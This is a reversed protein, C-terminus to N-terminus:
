AGVRFGGFFAKRSSADTSRDTGSNQFAYFEVTQGATLSVLATHRVPMNTIYTDHYVETTQDQAGDVYLKTTILHGSGIALLTLGYHFVYLGGKGSPVTFTDSTFASDSDKIESFNAIKTASSNGPIVTAVTQGQALFYPTNGAGTPFTGADSASTLVTGAEDPLTLTQNNNSNPAAITFTGTGSANGQIAVKSM